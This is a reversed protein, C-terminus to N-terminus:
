FTHGLIQWALTLEILSTESCYSVLGVCKAYDLFELTLQCARHCLAQIKLEGSFSWHRATGLM